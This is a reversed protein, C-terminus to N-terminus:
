SQSSSPCSPAAGRQRHGGHHPRLGGLVQRQLSMHHLKQKQEPSLLALTDIRMNLHATSLDSKLGNIKSQIELLQSKDVKEQTLLEKQQRSLTHLQAIKEAASDSFAAKIKAIKELQDDSLSLAPLPSAAAIGIVAPDPATTIEGPVSAVTGPLESKFEMREPTDSSATDSASQAFVPCAATSLITMSAFLRKMTVRDKKHSTQFLRRLFGRPRM